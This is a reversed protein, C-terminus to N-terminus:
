IVGETEPKDPQPSLVTKNLFSEQEPVGTLEQWTGVPPVPHVPVEKGAGGVDPTWPYKAQM